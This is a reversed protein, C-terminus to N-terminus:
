GILILLVYRRGQILNQLNQSKCDNSSFTQLRNKLVRQGKKPFTQGWTAVRFFSVELVSEESAEPDLGPPCVTLIHAELLARRLFGACLAQPPPM